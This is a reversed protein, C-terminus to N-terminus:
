EILDGPTLPLLLHQVEIVAYKRIHTSSFRFTFSLTPLDSTPLNDFCFLKGKKKQIQSKVAELAAQVDNDLVYGVMVGFPMGQAYQASVYRMLGKDVYKDALSEFGSDFNVNLRKCEYAIYNEQILDFYIVFDIFGKTVVDGALDEDLLKLQPVVLWNKRSQPDRQLSLVLQDTIHNELAMSDFRKACDPWVDIISQLM